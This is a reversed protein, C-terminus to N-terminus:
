IIEHLFPHGEKYVRKIKTDPDLEKCESVPFSGKEPSEREIYHDEDLQEATIETIADEADERCLVVIKELESEPLNNCFDKLQKWNM